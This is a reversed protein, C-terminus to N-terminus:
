EKYSIMPRQKTIKKSPPAFIEAAPTQITPYILERCFQTIIQLQQAPALIRWMTRANNARGLRGIHQEKLCPYNAVAV